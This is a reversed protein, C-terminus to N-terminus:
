LRLDVPNPTYNLLALPDVVIPMLLYKYLLILCSSANSVLSAITTGIPRYLDHVIYLKRRSARRQESAVTPSWLRRHDGAVM